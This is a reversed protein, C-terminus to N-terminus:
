SEVGIRNLIAEIPEALADSEIRIIPLALRVADVLDRMWQPRDLTGAGASAEIENMRHVADHLTNYTDCASLIHYWDGCQVLALTGTENLQYIYTKIM